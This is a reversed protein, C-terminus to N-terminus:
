AYVVIQQMALPVDELLQLLDKMLFHLYSAESIQPLVKYPGILLDGIIRVWVNITFQHQVHTEQISHLNEDSWTCM